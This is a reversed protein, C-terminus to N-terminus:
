YDKVDNYNVKQIKLVHTIKWVMIILKKFFLTDVQYIGLSIYIWMVYHVMSTFYMLPLLSIPLLNYCITSSTKFDGSSIKRCFNMPVMTSSMTIQVQKTDEVHDVWDHIMFQIWSAALMNFQTGTNILKRRVLLKTAVVM